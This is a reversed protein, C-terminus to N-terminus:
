RRRASFAPAEVEDLIGEERRFEDLTSGGRPDKNNKPKSTPM